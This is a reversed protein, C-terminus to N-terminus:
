FVLGIFPTNLVFFLEQRVTLMLMFLAYFDRSDQVIARSGFPIERHGFNHATATRDGTSSSIKEKWM